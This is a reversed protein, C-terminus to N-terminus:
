VDEHSGVDGGTAEVNLADGVHDVEIDRVIGLGVHVADAAGAARATGAFGDQEDGRALAAHQAGDLAHGVGAQFLHVQRGDILDIFLALFLKRLGNGVGHVILLRIEEAGQHAFVGLVIVRGHIVNGGGKFDRKRDDRRERDRKPKPLPKDEMLFNKGGQLMVALAAAIDDMAANNDESYKRVLTRFFDAQKNDMSNTISQAFKEKRKENVEDVSPLEMEELRANTVREISRLMRRERPTVFLIAEGSRGARGTRGIRHM